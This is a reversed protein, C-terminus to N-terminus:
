AFFSKTFELFVTDNVTLERDARWFLKMTWPLGFDRIPIGCLTPPEQSLTYASRFSIGLGQEVMHRYVVYPSGHGTPLTFGWAEFLRALRAHFSSGEVPTFLTEDKLMELSVSEMGAFPHTPHVIVAPRDKFLTVSEMKSAFAAPLENEEALLFTYQPPIGTQELQSPRLVATNLPVNPYTQYFDVLLDVWPNSILTAVGVAQEQQQLSQRLETRARDLNDFIQEVYRLFIEGERNLSIRNNTRDFLPLGLEKELRAISASLAPASVFLAEAAASIKGQEAVAKFYRLQSLEM